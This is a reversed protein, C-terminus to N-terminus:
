DAEQRGGQNTAHDLQRRLNKKKQAIVMREVAKGGRQGFQTQLPQVPHRQVLSLKRERQAM